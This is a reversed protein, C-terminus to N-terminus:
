DPGGSRTLVLAPVAVAPQQRQEPRPWARWRIVAHKDRDSEDDGDGDDHDADDSSARM